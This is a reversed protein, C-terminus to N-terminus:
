QTGILWSGSYPTEIDKAIVTVRVGPMPEMGPMPEGCMVVSDGLLIEAHMISGDPGEYKEVVRGGFAAELFAITHQPSPVVFAPTISHHGTPRPLSSM